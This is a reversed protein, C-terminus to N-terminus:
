EGPYVLSWQARLTDMLQLVALTQKHPVLPSELLGQQLCHNVHAAEIFYANEHQTYSIKDVIQGQQNKLIIHKGSWSFDPLEAILETGYVTASCPLFNVVSTQCQALVGPAYQLTIMSQQDVGTPAKEVQSVMSLPSKNLLFQLFTLPYIGIDLLAGGALDPNFIRNTLDSEAQFGMSTQVSKIEGLKGEAIITKLTQIAPLLPTTMAEMLFLQKQQALKILQASQSANLTMPKECLVAKGANLCIIAQSFHLQHPSAIYVIDADCQEALAVDSQYVDKINFQKAFATASNLNRSAVAVISTNPQKNLESVFQKAINGAGIIAWKIEKM